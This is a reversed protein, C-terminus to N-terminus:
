TLRSRRVLCSPCCKVFHTWLGRRGTQQHQHHPQRQPHQQWPPLESPPPHRIGQRQQSLGLSSPRRNNSSLSRHSHKCPPLLSSPPNRLVLIRTHLPSMAVIRALIVQKRQANTNRAIAVKRAANVANVVASTADWRKERQSKSDELFLFLLRHLAVFDDDVQVSLGHDHSIGLWSLGEDLENSFITQQQKQKQKQQKTSVARKEFAPKVPVFSTHPSPAHPAHVTISERKSGRLPRTTHTTRKEKKKECRVQVESIAGHVRAQKGQTGCIPTCDRSNFAETGRTTKM